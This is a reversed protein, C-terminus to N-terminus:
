MINYLANYVEDLEEQTVGMIQIKECAELYEASDEFGNEKAKCLLATLSERDVSEFYPDTGWGGNGIDAGYGYYTFQVRMVDGSQPYYDAMGVNAFVGNVTYMWGSMFTFDFEGLASTDWPEDYGGSIEELEPCIYYDSYDFGHLTSIYFSNDLKGTYSIEYGYIYELIYALIYAGNVKDKMEAAGSFGFYDAMDALMTEDLTVTMPEVVWGCGITFVEMAFTFTTPVTGDYYVTYVLTKSYQGASATVRIINEGASFNINYSTKEMDSWNVSAEVGNVLVTVASDSLKNGSSDEAWVDMVMLANTYTYGDTIGVRLSPELASIEADTLILDIAEEASKLASNVGAIDVSANIATKGDAVAKALVIREAERYDAPDAYNELEAAAASKANALKEEATLGTVAFVYGSDNKYYLTGDKGCIVSTICFNKREPIFLDYGEAETQGEGDTLVYIGGPNGNYTTYIYVKGTEKEYATSVLVSCQPYAKLPATYILSLDDASVVAIVGASGVGGGLGLYIRGNHVVPTSTSQKGEILEKGELNVISGDTKVEARYLIGNKSTFYIKGSDEDYAISSRQDGTLALESIIEGTLKNFSILKSGASTYDSVGNDTGVIVADGVVASGAWYFGGKQTYTWAAVKSEDPCETDEDTVSLCVFNADKVESNWFGTYIYGESYSIPSLSQGGLPDQYIWLSELTEANFAQIRGGSLPAFIMGEAYTAPTYGWNTAAIMTGRLLEDGTELDYKIISKGAMVILGDDVIIQISPADSWGSAVKKEWLLKGEKPTPASTIGMNYPNNRFNFWDSNVEAPQTGAKILNVKIIGGESNLTGTQTVYGSCVTQWNYESIGDLEYVGNVASLVTGDQATVRVVAKEANVSFKARETIQVTISGSVKEYNVSDAPIFEYGVTNDGIIYTFDEDALRFSGAATACGGFLDGPNEGYFKNNEEASPETVIVPVAKSVTLLINIEVTTGDTREYLAPYYDADAGPVVTGNKWTWNDPLAIDNLTVDPSYVREQLIPKEIDGYATIRVSSTVTEYNVADSPTFVTNYTFVGEKLLGRPEEFSWGSPLPVECLQKSARYTDNIDNLETTQPVAKNVKLNIFYEGEAGKGTYRARYASKDATPTISGDKWEWNEPLQIDSLTREPSYVIDDLEPLTVDAACGAFAALAIVTCLILLLIKKKM